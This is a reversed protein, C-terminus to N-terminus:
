REIFIKGNQKEIEIFLPARGGQIKWNVESAALNPISLCVGDKDCKEAQSKWSEILTKKCICLCRQNLCSNPKEQGLFSYLYWGSPNLVDKIESDGEQLSMVIRDIGRSGEETGFLVEKAQNLKKESSNSNYLAALVYVLFMICIVAIIIKLTEEALLFGKKDKIEIM